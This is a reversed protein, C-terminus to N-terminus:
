DGLCVFDVVLLLLLVLLLAARSVDDRAAFTGIGVCLAEPSPDGGFREM